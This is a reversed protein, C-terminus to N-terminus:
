YTIVINNMACTLPFQAVSNLINPHNLLTLSDLNKLNEFDEFGLFGLFGCNIIKYAIM